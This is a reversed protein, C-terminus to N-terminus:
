TGRTHHRDEGSSPSALPTPPRATFPGASGGRLPTRVARRGTTVRHFPQWGRLSACGSYSVSGAPFEQRERATTTTRTSLEATREDVLRSHEPAVASAGHAGRRYDGATRGDTSQPETSYISEIVVSHDSETWVHAIPGPSNTASSWMLHANEIRNDADINWTIVCRYERTDSMASWDKTYPRRAYTPAIFATDIATEPCRSPCCRRM